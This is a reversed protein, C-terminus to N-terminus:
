NHTFFIFGPILRDESGLMLEYKGIGNNPKIKIRFKRESVSEIQLFKGGVTVSKNDKKFESKPDPVKLFASLISLPYNAILEGSIVFESDVSVNQPPPFDLLAIEESFTQTIVVREDNAVIGIGIHTYSPSLINMRHTPSQMLSSMGTRVIEFLDVNRSIDYGGTIWAQHINEGIRGILEPIKERQRQAPNKGDPTNHSFFNRDLMDKSHLLALDELKSDYKLSLFGKRARESNLLNIMLKQADKIQKDSYAAFSNFSFLLIFLSFFLFYM